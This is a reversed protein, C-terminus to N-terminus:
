MFKRRKFAMIDAADLDFWEGNKRKAEFRKHWYAEIGNPDDTRIVHVTAAREPLQITLERERRGASNTKGVKYFRGSKMLYVFGFEEDSIAPDSRTERKRPVYEECYRAVDQYGNNTRCFELLKEVFESRSGLRLFTKDNPFKKENRARLRIDSATPLRGLEQALKAYRDLLETADYARNLENPAFGAERVADSWRAWHAMWDYSKIGTETAFKAYGLQSGGNAETTRKIEDLIHLKDM